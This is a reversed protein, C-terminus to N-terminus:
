IETIVALLCNHEIRIRPDDPSFSTRNPYGNLGIGTYKAQAEKLVWFRLLALRKDAARDYQAREQESLIKQALKLNFDRDLEEADIGVPRDSLACFVHRKTHTISFHLPDNKFFPKGRPTLCIPPMPKGTVDRYMKELLARGADHANGNAPMHELLLM